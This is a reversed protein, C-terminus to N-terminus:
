RWDILGATGNDFSIGSTPIKTPEGGDIPIVFLETAQNTGSTLKSLFAVKSSDPSVVANWNRRDKVAPIFTTRDSYWDFAGTKGSLKYKYVIYPDNAGNGNGICTDTSVWDYTDGIRAPYQMSSDYYEYSDYTDIVSGDPLPYIDVGNWNCDDAMIEVANKSLNNIPVRKIQANSNTWDRFYIYDEFFRPHMHRTLAGFDSQTSVKASVDTFQGKEDVWGIHQAGNELTVLATMLTMDSNFNRLANTTNGGIGSLYASCSHTSESSFTRVHTISGNSPNIKNIDVTFATFKYGGNSKYTYQSGYTASVVFIGDKFKAENQLRNTIESKLSEWEQELSLLGDLDKAAYAVEKKEVLASVKASESDTLKGESISSTDGILQYADKAQRIKDEISTKFDEWELKLQQLEELNKDNYAKEVRSKLEEMKVLEDASLDALEDTFEITGILDMAEDLKKSIDLANNSNGCASFAIASICLILFVSLTNKM